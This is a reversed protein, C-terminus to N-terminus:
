STWSCFSTQARPMAASPPAFREEEGLAVMASVVLDREESACQAPQCHNSLPVTVSYWSLMTAVIWYNFHIRTHLFRGSMLISRKIFDPALVAIASNPPAATSTKATPHPLPALGTPSGVVVVVGLEEDDGEGV